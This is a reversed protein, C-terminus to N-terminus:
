PPRPPRGLFCNGPVSEVTLPEFAVREVHRRVPRRQEPEEGTEWIEDARPSQVGGLGRSPFLGCGSHARSSRLLVGSMMPQESPGSGRSCSADGRCVCSHVGRPNGGRLGTGACQRGRVTQGDRGLDPICGPLLPEATDGMSIVSIGLTLGEGAWGPSGDKQGM